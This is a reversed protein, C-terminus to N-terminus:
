LNGSSETAANDKEELARQRAILEQHRPIVCTEMHHWWRENRWKAWLIFLGIFAFGIIEFLILQGWEARTQPLRLWGERKIYWLGILIGIIYQLQKKTDRRM